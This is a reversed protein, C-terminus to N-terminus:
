VLKNCGSYRKHRCHINIILIQTEFFFSFGVKEHPLVNAIVHSADIGVNKAVAKATIDNDGSIMWTGIGENQLHTIISKAEPRIRDVVSFIAAVKFASQNEARIALIIVSKAQSKWTNLTGSIIGDITADHDEIWTQNGIIATCSQDEFRAKLGRGAAEEFMSGSVRSANQSLCFSSIAKGLPHSSSSELEAAIGLIASREWQTDLIEFDSVAPEGGETLTGTKDFVIIDVQAMEQFAEGGGQALIGFKAALGSGVLLATPAALGIGCPCAVVFM